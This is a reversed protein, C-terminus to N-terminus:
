QGFCLYFKYPQWRSMLLCDLYLASHLWNESLVVKWFGFITQTRSLDIFFQVFQENHTLMTIKIVM